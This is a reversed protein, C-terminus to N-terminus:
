NKSLGINNSNSQMKPWLYIHFTVCFLAHGQIQLDVTVLLATIKEVLSRM